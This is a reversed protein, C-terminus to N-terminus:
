FKNGTRGTPRNQRHAQEAQLGIIPVVALVPISSELLHSNYLSYQRFNLSNIVVSRWSHSILQFSISVSHGSCSLSLFRWGIPTLGYINMRPKVSSNGRLLCKSFHFEFCVVCTISMETPAIDVSGIRLHCGVM